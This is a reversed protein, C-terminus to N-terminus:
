AWEKFLELPIEQHSAYVAPVGSQKYATETGNQRVVIKSGPKVPIDPACFLTVSQSVAATGGGEGAATVSEFSLHCPVESLVEEETTETLKTETNRTKKLEYVSCSGCYTDEMIQRHAALAQMVADRIM